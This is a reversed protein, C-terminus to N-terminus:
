YLRIRFKKIKQLHICSEFRHWILDVTWDKASMFPFAIPYEFNHHIIVLRLLEESNQYPLIEEELISEFFSRGRDIFENFNIIVLPNSQYHITKQEIQFKKNKQSKEFVKEYM